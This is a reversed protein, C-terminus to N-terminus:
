IYGYTRIFLVRRTDLVMYDEDEDEDEMITINYKEMIKDYDEM